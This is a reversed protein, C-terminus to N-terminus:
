QLLQMAALQYARDHYGALAFYYVDHIGFLTIQMRGSFRTVLALSRAYGLQQQRAHLVAGGWGRPSV